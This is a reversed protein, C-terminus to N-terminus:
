GILFVHIIVTNAIRESGFVRFPRIAPPEVWPPTYYSVASFSVSYDYPWVAYPLVTQPFGRQRQVDDTSYELVVQRGAETRAVLAIIKSGNPMHLRSQVHSITPPLILEPEAAGLGFGGTRQFYGAPALETAMPMANIDATVVPTPIAMEEICWDHTATCVFLSGTANNGAPNFWVGKPEFGTPVPKPARFVGVYLFWQPVNWV